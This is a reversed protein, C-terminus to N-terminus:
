SPILYSHLNIEKIAVLFDCAEPITWDNFPFALLAEWRRATSDSLTLFPTECDLSLALTLEPYRACTHTLYSLVQLTNEFAHQEVMQGQEMMFTKWAKGHRVVGISLAM